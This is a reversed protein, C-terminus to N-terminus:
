RTHSPEPRAWELRFRQRGDEIEVARREELAEHFHADLRGGVADADEQVSNVPRQSPLIQLRSPRKARGLGYGVFRDFEDHRHIASTWQMVRSLSPRCAYRRGVM